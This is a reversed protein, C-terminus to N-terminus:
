HSDGAQNQLCSCPQHCSTSCFWCYLGTPLPLAIFGLCLFMEAVHLPAVNPFTISCEMVGGKTHIFPYSFVSTLECRPFCLARHWHAKQPVPAEDLDIMRGNSKPYGECPSWRVEAPLGVLGRQVQLLDGSDVERPGPLVGRRWSGARQEVKEM